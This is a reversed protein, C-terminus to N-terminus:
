KLWLEKGDDSQRLLRFNRPVWDDFDALRADWFRGSYFVLAKVRPQSAAEILDHSTLYGSRIRVYSTDALAPPTSRDALGAMFQDDTIVWSGPRTHGRLDRAFESRLSAGADRARAQRERYYTVTGRGNGVVVAVMLLVAAVEPIGRNGVSPAGSPRGLGILALGILPPLLLLLHHDWLPTHVSLLGFTAALWSLLPLVRWDRRLVAVCTGVLASVGLLSRLVPTMIAFNTVNRASFAAEAAIHFGWVGTWLDRLVGAFALLPLALSLLFGIAMCLLPVCAEWKPRKSEPWALAVRHVLLLGVPIVSVIGLLKILTGIAAAVGALFALRGAEGARSRGGAKHALGVALLAFGVCGAEALVTQSCRLYFPDSVLLLLAALAGRRGALAHGLLAAGAVGSLSLVAVGMRIAALSMGFPLALGYLLSLFLPPQSCFIPNYLHFGAQMARLSQWYVGEDYEISQPSGLLYLRMAIAGALLAVVAIWFLPTRRGVPGTAVGAVDDHAVSVEHRRASWRM